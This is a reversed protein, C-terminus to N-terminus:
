KQYKLRAQPGPSPILVDMTRKMCPPSCRTIESALAVELQNPLLKYVVVLFLLFLDLMELSPLKTTFSTLLSLLRLFLLPPTRTSVLLVEIISKRWEFIILTNSNLIKVFRLLSFNSSESLWNAWIDSQQKLWLSNKVLYFHNRSVIPRPWPRSTSSIHSLFSLPPAM